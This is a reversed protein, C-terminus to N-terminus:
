LAEAGLYSELVKPHRTVEEPTGQAITAGHHM